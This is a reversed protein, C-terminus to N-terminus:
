PRAARFAPHRPAALDLPVGASPATPARHRIASPLQGIPPYLLDAEVVPSEISFPTLGLGRLVGADAVYANTLLARLSAFV